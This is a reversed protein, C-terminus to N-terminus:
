PRSEKALAALDAAAAHMLRENKSRTGKYVLSPVQPAGSRLEYIQDQWVLLEETTPGGNRDRFVDLIGTALARRAAGAQRTTQWQEYVDLMAPLLPLAVGLIFTALSFSLALSMIVAISAWMVTVVLWVNANTALLREAYAANARQAIAITFRGDLTQDVPYWDLLREEAAAPMLKDDPGALGALSEPSVSPDRLALEPMAFVALDFQEQVAAGQAALSREQQMFVTRSLFLWVGAVAGIVVAAHPYSATFLPAGVGILGFGLARLASWRKAKAYLRRQAVLLRLNPQANQAAAIAASSPLRYDGPSTGASMEAYTGSCRSRRESASSDGSSVEAESRSTALAGATDCM